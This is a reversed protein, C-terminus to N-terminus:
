YHHGLLSSCTVNGWYHHGLLLTRTITYRVQLQQELWHYQWGILELGYWLFFYVETSFSIIHAPGANWSFSLDYLTCRDITYTLVVTNCYFAHLYLTLIIRMQIDHVVSLLSIREFNMSFYIITTLMPHTTSYSNECIEM